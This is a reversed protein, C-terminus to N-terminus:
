ILVILSSQYESAAALQNRTMQLSLGDLLNGHSHPSHFQLGSRLRGNLMTLSSSDLKEWRMQPKPEGKALCDVKLEHNVSVVIEKPPEKTWQLQVLLPTIHIPYMNPPLFLNYHM